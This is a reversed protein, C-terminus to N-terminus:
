EEQKEQIVHTKALEDGVRMGKESGLLVLSEFLVVAVAILFSFFWGILPIVNFIGYLVFGVAFTFNRLISERFSCAKVGDTNTFVVVKLKILKKGVSRGDFLGDAILLYTLGAFFGVKPIAEYLSAVILFDIIRALIRYLLGAKGSEKQEIVPEDFLSESVSMKIGM